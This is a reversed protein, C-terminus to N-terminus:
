ERAEELRMLMAGSELLLMHLRDIIERVGMDDSGDEEMGRENGAAMKLFFFNEQRRDREM